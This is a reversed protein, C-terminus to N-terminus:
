ENGTPTLPVSVEWNARLQIKKSFRDIREPQTKNTWNGADWKGNYNSDNVVRFTYEGPELNKLIVTIEDNTVRSLVVRNNQVLELILPSGQYTTLDIIFTGYKREPNFEFVGVYRSNNGFNCQVAGSDIVINVGIMERRDMYIHFTNQAFVVDFDNIETSDQSNIIHFGNKDINQIQDNLTFTLTDVPSLITKTKISLKPISKPEAVRMSITDTLLDSQIILEYPGPIITKQFLMLSDSDLFRYDNKTLPQGNLFVSENLIPVTSGVVFLGRGQYNMTRIRPMPLPTSFPFPISDVMSQDIMVTGYNKFAVGEFSDLTLNNNADDLAILEYEGPRVNNLQAFGKDNTEALNLLEKSTVDYLGVLAKNKPAGSFADQVWLSYSLSDIVDGTSFVYHIISDNAETIDKVAEKLYISYTTNPKLDEKWSVTLKKGDVVAEMKAHPPIMVINKAPNDLRIFEDFVFTVEKVQFHLSNNPPTTQDDLLAPAFVDREGGTLVGVQACSGLLGLLAILFAYRAM